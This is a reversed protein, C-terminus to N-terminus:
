RRIMLYVGYVGVLAGGVSLATGADGDVLMGAGILSAGVVLWTLGSRRGPRQQDLAAVAEPGPAPRLDVSLDPRAAPASLLLDQRFGPRLQDIASAPTAPAGAVAADAAETVANSVGTTKTTEPGAQALAPATAVLLLVCVAFYGCLRM